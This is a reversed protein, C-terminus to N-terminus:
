SEFDKVEVTIFDTWINIGTFIFVQFHLHPL